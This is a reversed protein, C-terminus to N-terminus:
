KEALMKLLEQKLSRSSLPPGDRYVRFKKDILILRPIMRVNLARSIIRKDTLVVDPRHLKSKALHNRVKEPSEGLFVDVYKVGRDALLAKLTDIERAQSKCSPCWTTGVTLLIPQGELQGINFMEGELTTGPLAPFVAGKELAYVSMTPVILVVLLCIKVIKLLKNRGFFM